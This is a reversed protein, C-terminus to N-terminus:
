KKAEHQEASKLFQLADNGKDYIGGRNLKTYTNLLSTCIQNKFFSAPRM